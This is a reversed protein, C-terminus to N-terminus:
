TVTFLTINVPSLYGATSQSSWDLIETQLLHPLVKHFQVLGDHKHTESDSAAASFLPVSICTLFSPVPFM